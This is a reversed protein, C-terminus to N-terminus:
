KGGSILDVAARLDDPAHKAYVKEVMLISNGLVKAVIWLPVGRRAMHTAATHRLVHPSVGVVGARKAVRQVARYADFGGFLKGTGRHAELVPLLASSIPVSARRKKTERKAPDRLHIVKTEFDVRDWTLDLLAQKRGATELALHLFMQADRGEEEAAAVMRAIEDQTLWRDRADGEVPLGIAPAASIIPKRKTGDACWRLCARLTVLERRITSPKVARSRLDVYAEVKETVDSVLMDGFFPELARWSYEATVPSAITRVHKAEYVTWCDRVTLNEKSEPEAEAGGILLWQAFRAKAVAPDSSGMSKRKSRRGESWTAYWQGNDAKVLKPISM